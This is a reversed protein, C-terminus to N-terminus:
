ESIKEPNKKVCQAENHGEVSCFTHAKNSGGNDTNGGESDNSKGYHFNVKCKKCEKSQHLYVKSCNRHKGQFMGGGEVLFIYRRQHVCEKNGSQTLRKIDSVDSYLRDFDLSNSKM